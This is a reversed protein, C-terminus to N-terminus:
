GVVAARDLAARCEDALLEVAALMRGLNVPSYIHTVRGSSHGLLAQRVEYDVGLEELRRGFTHRLNHPGSAVEDGTPLEAAIWGRKWATNHMRSVPHGRFTFVHTEHRDRRAAVISRAVRNLVVVHDRKSKEGTWGSGDPKGPVTFRGERYWSWRLGSVAHDRLGTHLAFLAMEALHSPLAQLFRAQDEPTLIYPRAQDEFDPCRLAPPSVLLPRNKDDRWDTACLSLIQRITAIERKLTGTRAGAARRRGIGDVIVGQHIHTVPMPGLFDAWAKIAYADRGISRKHGHTALYRAAVSAFTAKPALPGSQTSAEALLQHLRAEAQDRESDGFPTREYLRRGRYQKNIIWRGTDPDLYLGTIRRPM